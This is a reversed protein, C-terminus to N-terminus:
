DLQATFDKGLNLSTPNQPRAQTGVGQGLNAMALLIVSSDDDPLSVHRLLIGYEM